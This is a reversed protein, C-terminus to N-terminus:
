NIKTLSITDISPPNEMGLEKLMKQMTSDVYKMKQEPTRSQITTLLYEALKIAETKNLINHSYSLIRQTISPVNEQLAKDFFLDYTIAVMTRSFDTPQHNLDKSLKICEAEMQKKGEPYLLVFELILNIDMSPVIKQRKNRQKKMMIWIIVFCVIVIALIIFFAKM